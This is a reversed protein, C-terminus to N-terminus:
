THLNSVGLRSIYPALIRGTVTPKIVGEGFLNLVQALFLLGALVYVFNIYCNILSIATVSLSAGFCRWPKALLFLGLTWM